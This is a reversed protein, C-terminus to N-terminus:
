AYAGIQDAIDAFDHYRERGSVAAAQMQETTDWRQNEENKAEASIEDDPNEL